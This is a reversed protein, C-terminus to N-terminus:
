SRPPFLSVVNVSFGPLVSGGDLLDTEFLFRCASRTQFVQVQKQLPHVVWVLSVGAAFYDSLKEMLEEVRDSPSIVEIALDPVVPWANEVLSLPRDSPWRTESVFAADPRRNRPPNVPLRFLIEVVSSGLNRPMAFIAIATNIRNAVANAYHSMPPLEVRVGDIEEFLEDADFEVEAAQYPMEAVPM